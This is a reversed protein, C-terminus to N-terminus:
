KKNASKPPCVSRAGGCDSKLAWSHASAVPLYPLKSMLLFKVTRSFVEDSFERGGNPTCGACSGSKRLLSYASSTCRSNVAEDTTAIIAAPVEAPAAPTQSPTAVSSEWEPLRTTITATWSSSLTLGGVGGSSVVKWGPWVRCTHRQGNGALWCISNKLGRM